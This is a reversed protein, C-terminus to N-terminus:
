KVNILQGGIIINLNMRKKANAIQNFFKDLHPKFKEFSEKDIYAHANDFKNRGFLTQWFMATLDLKLGGFIKVNKWLADTRQDSHIIVEPQGYHEIKDLSTKWPIVVDLNEIHLGNVM